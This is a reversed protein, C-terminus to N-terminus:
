WDDNFMQLNNGTRTSVDWENQGRYNMRRDYDVSHCKYYLYHLVGNNLTLKYYYTIDSYEDIKGNVTFPKKSVFSELWMTNGEIRKVELPYHYNSYNPDNVKIIKARVTYQDGVKTIRVVVKYDAEIIDTYTGESDKPSNDWDTDRYSESTWTGIWPDSSQAYSNVEM